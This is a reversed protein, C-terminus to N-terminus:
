LQKHIKGNAVTKTDRENVAHAM